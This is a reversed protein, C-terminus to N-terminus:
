NGLPLEWTEIERLALYCADHLHAQNFKVLETYEEPIPLPNGLERMLASIIGKLATEFEGVGNLAAALMRKAAGVSNEKFSRSRSNILMDLIVGLFNEAQSQL